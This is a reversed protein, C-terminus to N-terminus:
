GGAMVHVSPVLIRTMGREWERRANRNRSLQLVNDLAQWAVYTRSSTILLVTARLTQPFSLLTNHPPLFVSATPPPRTLQKWPTGCHDTSPGLGWLWSGWRCYVHWMSLVWQADSSRLNTLLQHLVKLTGEITQKVRPVQQGTHTIPSSPPM